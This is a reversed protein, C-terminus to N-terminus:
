NEQRSSSPLQCQTLPPLGRILDSAREALMMVCANIHGSPMDPFASADVVRLGEIGRVRLQSDLVTHPGDGMACTGLPHNVTVVTKRIWVDIEADTDVSSMPSVERGRFPDLPKQSAVERAHRFANRLTALDEPHSLFNFNIRVPAIPDASRLLVQGRSRPHLLAPRIGYGDQYPAKVGPFWLHADLATPRFMFEIDPVALNPRTKLFAFLGLPATAASGAGFLYAQAMKVAMRDYRMLRHFPGRTRRAWMMWVALHDQLNQGVPLDAVSSIGLQRLHDAPGIGSLMLLQPSNFTGGCLIVERTARAQEMAGRCVFEVGTARTARRLLGTAHAGIRLSLNTRHRIPHLYATSASSRRGNRITLQGRGFGEAEVGNYDDTVPWGALKGAEIWADYIPDKMKAWQTGLPGSGGRWGNGGDEWTESRRFYPLVEDYSWGTAGEYAWRDYDNRHGRSYAMVNTSSSGGLVKGRLVTLQRGNLNPEPETKYGWDFMQHQQLKGLGLPISIYPHTDHGGAELLLVRAGADETLRNALVCGASGAGVIIYDYDGVVSM